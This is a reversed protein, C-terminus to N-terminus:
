SRGARAWRRGALAAVVALAAAAVLAVELGTFAHHVQDYRSGLAWGVGAFGFCWIASGALTLLTYPALPSDLVGAPISIFSRVVPTLRGLFVAARGHREFWAEAGALREADLHLWRGHREVLPRGGRRGAAWGALAGALYGLTGALAVVVYSGLGHPLTHGLLVPHRGAIAGAALAGAVLMTLEGGAPLVADVAMVVFIAYVGHQTIWDTLTQTIAASPM